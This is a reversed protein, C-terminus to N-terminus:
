ESDNRPPVVIGRKKIERRLKTRDIRLRRAAAAVNNASSRLAGEILERDLPRDDDPLPGLLKVVAHERLGRAADMSVAREVTDRLERVNLKWDHLLLREVAEVEAHESAVSAVKRAIAFIDEARDALAPIEILGPAFRAYLDARFTRAAIMHTLDRNTAGIILADFDIPRTGGVPVVQRNELVRLLKPQLDLPLEGIEDLLVAGGKASVLIGDSARDAGSFAGKRHGFLQSEFVSASIAAVNIPVYPDSDRRRAIEAALLEKGCGTEARILVNKVEREVIRDLDQALRRLGFPGVLGGVPNAPLVSGILQHRYVFVTSGIRLLDGDSLEVPEGSRVRRGNVYTGNTSNADEVYIGPGRRSFLVHGKSIRRDKVGCQLFWPRGVVTGPSPVPIAMPEPFAAILVESRVPLAPLSPGLHRETRSPADRPVRCLRDAGQRRLAPKLRLSHM